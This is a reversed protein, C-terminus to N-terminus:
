DEALLQAAAIRRPALAPILAAAFTFLVAVAGVGLAALALEDQFEGSFATVAGLSASAPRRASAEFSAVSREIDSAFNAFSPASTFARNMFHFYELGSTALRRLMVGIVQSEAAYGPM